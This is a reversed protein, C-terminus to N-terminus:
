PYTYWTDIRVGCRDAVEQIADVWIEDCLVRTTDYKHLVAYDVGHKIRIERLERRMQSIPSESLEPNRHADPDERLRECAEEFSFAPVTFEFLHPNSPGSEAVAGDTKRERNRRRINEGVTGGGARGTRQSADLLGRYVAWDAAETLHPDIGVSALGSKYQPGDDGYRAIVTPRGEGECVYLDYEGDTGLFVCKTCDHQYRPKENRTM